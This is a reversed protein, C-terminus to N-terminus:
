HQYWFMLDDNYLRKIYDYMDRIACVNNNDIIASTFGIDYTNTFIM